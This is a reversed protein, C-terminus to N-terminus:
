RERGVTEQQTVHNLFDLLLHTLYSVFFLAFAPLFRRSRLSVLGALALSVVLGFTISHTFGSHFAGPYGSLLGPISDLDPVTAAFVGAAVLLAADRRRLASSFRSAAYGARAHGIPTPM